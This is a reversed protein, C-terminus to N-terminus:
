SLAQKFSSQAGSNLSLQQSNISFNNAAVLYFTRYSLYFISTSWSLSRYTTSSYLSSSECSGILFFAVVANFKNKKHRHTGRPVDIDEVRSYMILAIKM